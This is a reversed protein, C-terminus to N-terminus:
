ERSYCVNVVTQLERRHAAARAKALGSGVEPGIWTILVHKVPNYEADGQILVGLVAFSVLKPDLAAKMEDLGGTGSAQLQVEDREVYSLLVWDTLDEHDHLKRLAGHLADAGRIKLNSLAM